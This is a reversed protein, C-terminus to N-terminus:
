HIKQRLLKLSEGPINCSDTFHAIGTLFNVVPQRAFARRHSSTSNTFAAGAALMGGSSRGRSPISFEKGREKGHQWTLEIM